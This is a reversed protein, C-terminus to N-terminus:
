LYTGSDDSASHNEHGMFSDVYSGFNDGSKQIAKQADKALHLVLSAGIIPLFIVLLFQLIKQQFNYSNSKMLVLSAYGDLFIVVCATIILALYMELTSTM